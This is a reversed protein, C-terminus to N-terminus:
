LLQWGVGQELLYAPQAGAADMATGAHPGQGGPGGGASCPSLSSNQRSLQPDWCPLLTEHVGFGPQQSGSDWGHPIGLSM